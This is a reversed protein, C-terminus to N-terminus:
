RPQHGNREINESVRVKVELQITLESLQTLIALMRRPADLLGGRSETSLQSPMQEGLGLLVDHAIKPTDVITELRRATLPGDVGPHQISDTLISLAPKIEPTLASGLKVAMEEFSPITGQPLDAFPIMEGSKSSLIEIRDRPPLTLFLEHLLRWFDTVARQADLLSIRSPFFDPGGCLRMSIPMNRLMSLQSVVILEALVPREGELALVTAEGKGQVFSAMDLFLNTTIPWREFTKTQTLPEDPILLANLASLAKDGQILGEQTEIGVVFLDTPLENKERLQQIIKFACGVGDSSPTVDLLLLTNPPAQRIAKEIERAAAEQNQFGLSGYGIIRLVNDPARERMIYNALPETHRFIPLGNGSEPPGASRERYGTFDTGDLNVKGRATLPTGWLSSVSLLGCPADSICRGGLFFKYFCYSM